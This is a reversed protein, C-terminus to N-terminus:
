WHCPLCEGSRVRDAGELMKLADDMRGITLYLEGLANKTLAAHVTDEGYAEIKLQLSSLYKREAAIYDRAGVLALADNNLTIAKDIIAVKEPPHLNQVTSM